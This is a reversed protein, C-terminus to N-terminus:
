VSTDHENENEKEETTTPPPPTPLIRLVTQKNHIGLSITIRKGITEGVTRATGATKLSEVDVRASLLYGRAYESGGRTLFYLVPKVAVRPKRTAPDIDKPNPITKEHTMRSITVTLSSVNWRDILDTPQIFRSPYLDDLLTNPEINTTM